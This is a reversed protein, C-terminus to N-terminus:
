AYMRDFVNICPMTASLTKGNHGSNRLELAAKVTGSYLRM